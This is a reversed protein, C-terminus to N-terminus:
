LGLVRWARTAAHLNFRADVDALDLGSV